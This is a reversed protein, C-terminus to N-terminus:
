WNDQKFGGNGTAFVYINGRKNRGERIATEFAERVMKGPGELTAGDDNPGWSCSYVDNTAM